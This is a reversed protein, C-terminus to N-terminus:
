KGKPRLTLDMDDDYRPDERFRLRLFEGWQDRAFYFEISDYRKHHGDRNDLRHSCSFGGDATLGYKWARLLFKATYIFKKIAWIFDCVGFYGRKCYWGVITTM